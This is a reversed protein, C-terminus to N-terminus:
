LQKNAKPTWAGVQSDFVGEVVVNVSLDSSWTAIIQSPNADKPKSLKKQLRRPPKQPSSHVHSQAAGNM